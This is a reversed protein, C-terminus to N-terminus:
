RCMVYIVRWYRSGVMIGSNFSSCATVAVLIPMAWAVPGIM